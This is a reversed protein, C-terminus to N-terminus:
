KSVELIQKLLEISSEELENNTGLEGHFARALVSKRIMDIQGSSKKKTDPSDVQEQLKEKAEDLKEFFMDLIDVIRKQEPLPALPIAKNKLMPVTLQPISNGTGEEILYDFAYKIYKPIICDRPKIVILRVVPVYEYDRIVSFGITGRGSVTITNAPEKAFNTYGVIGEDTMGNAVVPM